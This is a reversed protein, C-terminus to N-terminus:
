LQRAIQFEASLRSFKKAVLPLLAEAEAVVDPNSDELSKVLRAHLRNLDALQQTIEPASSRKPPTAANM